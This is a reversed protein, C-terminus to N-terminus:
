CICIRAGSFIADRMVSKVDVNRSIVVLADLNEVGLRNRLGSTVLGAESFVRECEIQSAPVGLVIRAVDRLMPM